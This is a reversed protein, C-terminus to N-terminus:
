SIERCLYSLQNGDSTINKIKLHKQQEPLIKRVVQLRVGGRDDPHIDSTGDQAEPPIRDQRLYTRIHRRRRSRVLRQGAERHQYHKVIKWAEDLDQGLINKMVTPAKLRPTVLPKDLLFHCLEAYQSTTCGEITYHGSNHPRPAMENFVFTNGKIFLEIALIGRYGCSDM